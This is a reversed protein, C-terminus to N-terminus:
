FSLFDRLELISIARVTELLPSHVGFHSKILITGDAEVSICLKKRFINAYNSSM